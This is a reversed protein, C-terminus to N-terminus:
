VKMKVAHRPVHRCVLFIGAERVETGVPAPDKPPCDRYCLTGSSAFSRDVGGLAKGFASNRNGQVGGAVKPLARRLAIRGPLGIGFFGAAETLTMEPAAALALDLLLDPARREDKRDAM